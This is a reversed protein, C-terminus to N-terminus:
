WADEEGDFGLKSPVTKSLELQRPRLKAMIVKSNRQPLSSSKRQSREGVPAFRKK